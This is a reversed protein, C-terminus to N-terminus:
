IGQFYARACRCPPQTVHLVQLHTQLMYMPIQNRREINKQQVVRVKEEKKSFVIVKDHFGYSCTVSKVVLSIELVTVYLYKGTLILVIQHVYRNIRSNRKSLSLNQNRFFFCCNWYRDMLMVYQLLWVSATSIAALHVDIECDGM